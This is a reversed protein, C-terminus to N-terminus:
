KVFTLSCVNLHPEGPVRFLDKDRHEWWGVRKFGQAEAAKVFTDPSVFEGDESDLQCDSSIIFTGMPKLCRYTERFVNNLVTQGDPCVGTRGCFHTIACLDLFVDVSEDGVLPFWDWVNSEVMKAKSGVCDHDLRGGTKPTDVCTVDHGWSSIIHPVCGRASGLDVVKLGDTDNYLYEFRELVGVWKVLADSKRWLDQHPFDNEWNRRDREERAHQLDQKTYLYNTVQNM